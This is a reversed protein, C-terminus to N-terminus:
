WGRKKGVKSSGNEERELRIGEMRKEEWGEENWERRKRVQKMGIEEIEM